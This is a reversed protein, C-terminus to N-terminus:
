LQRLGAKRDRFALKGPVSPSFELREMAATIVSGREAPCKVEQSTVRHLAICAAEAKYEKTSYSVISWSM